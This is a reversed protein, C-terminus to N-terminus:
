ARGDRTETGVRQLAQGLEREGNIEAATGEGVELDKEGKGAKQRLAAATPVRQPSVSASALRNRKICRAIVLLAPVAIGAAISAAAQEVEPLGSAITNHSAITTGAALLAASFGPWCTPSGDYQSSLGESSANVWMYFFYM